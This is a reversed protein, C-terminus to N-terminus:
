GDTPLEFFRECQQHLRNVLKKTKTHESSGDVQRAHRVRHVMKPSAKGIVIDKDTSECTAPVQQIEVEDEDTWAHVLRRQGTRLLTRELRAIYKKQKTTTERLRKLEVEFQELRLVTGALEHQQRKIVFQIRRQMALRQKSEDDVQRTAKAAVERMRHSEREAKGIKSRLALVEATPTQTLTAYPSTIYRSRLYLEHTAPAAPDDHSPWRLVVWEVVCYCASLYAATSADREVQDAQASCFERLTEMEASLSKVEDNARTRLATETEIHEVLCSNKKALTAVTRRLQNLQDQADALSKMWEIEQRRAGDREEGLQVLLLKIEGRHYQCTPC